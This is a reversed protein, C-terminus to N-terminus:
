WKRWGGSVLKLAVLFAGVVLVVAWFTLFVRMSLLEFMVSILSRM